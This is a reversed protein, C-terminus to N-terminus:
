SSASFGSSRYSSGFGGRSIAASKTVATSKPAYYVRTGAPRSYSGGRVPENYYPIHSNRGIYYWSGGNRRCADDPLRKNTRKDVCVATDRDAYYSMGDDWDSNNYNPNPGCAAIAMAAASTFSLNFVKQSM